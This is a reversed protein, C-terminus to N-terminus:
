NGSSHYHKLSFRWFLYSLMYLAFGIAPAIYMLGKSFQAMDPKTLIFQVPFYNVFAFPLIYIMLFQIIKPYISIPYGAFRRPEYYLVKRLNGVKMFFFCLSATFLFVAGQILVGSLIATIFYLINGFTWVVGIRNASVLMLTIGLTGHGIAAFWDSNSSLIQFLVGRPRLLFRDLSGNNVMWEFDRLGTFFIIFIGYTVFILSYLFFLEMTNWGNLSDFSKLTLYIIIIGAGERLFVALSRLCADLKYQFWSKITNKVYYGYMRLSDM